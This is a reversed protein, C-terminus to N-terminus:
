IMEREPVSDYVGHRTQTYQLETGVPLEGASAGAVVMWGVLLLNVTVDKRCEGAVDPFSARDM